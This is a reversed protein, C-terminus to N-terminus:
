TAPAPDDCHSVGATVGSRRRERDSRLHKQVWKQHLWRVFDRIGRGSVSAIDRLTIHASVLRVTFIRLNGPLVPLALPSRVPTGLFSFPTMYMPSPIFDRQSPGDPPRRAWSGTSLKPDAQGGGAGRRSPREAERVFTLTVSVPVLPRAPTIFPCAIIFVPIAIVTVVFGGFLYAWSGSSNM